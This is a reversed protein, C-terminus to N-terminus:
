EVREPMVPVTQGLFFSYLLTEKVPLGLIPEPAQRFFRFDWGGNLLRYYASERRNGALAKELSDYPIAYARQPLRNGSLRDLREYERMSSVGGIM